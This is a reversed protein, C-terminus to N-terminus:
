GRVNLNLLVTMIFVESSIVVEHLTTMSLREWLVWLHDRILLASRSGFVQLITQM